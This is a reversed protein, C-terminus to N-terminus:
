TNFMQRKIPSTNQLAKRMWHLQCSSWAYLSYLTYLTYQLEGSMLVVRLDPRKGLLDRLLILLFDTNIDREHVEDIIVHGVDKLTPDNVIRRLLVGTTVFEITGGAKRPARRNFRVTYGISHGITEDREDAVREAVSVAAIKRPQTVIIKTSAGHGSLIADELIYQPCQTSKGSGTGGSVVVVQETRLALLLDERIKTIPLAERTAKMKGQKGDPNQTIEEGKKIEADRLGTNIVELRSQRPRPRRGNRNNTPAHRNLQTEFEDKVRAHEKMRLDHKGNLPGVLEVLSHAVEYPLPPINLAAVAKSPASDIIAEYHKM